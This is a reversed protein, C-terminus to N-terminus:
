MSDLVLWKRPYNQWGYLFGFIMWIINDHVIPLGITKHNQPHESVMGVEVPDTWFYHICWLLLNRPLFHNHVLSGNSEKAGRHLCVWGYVFGATLCAEREMQEM